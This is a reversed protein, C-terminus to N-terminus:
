VGGFLCVFGGICMETLEDYGDSCDPFGNCLDQKRLCTQGNDCRLSWRKWYQKRSCVSSSFYFIFLIKRKLCINREAVMALVKVPSSQIYSYCPRHRILFLSQKSKALRTKSPNRTTWRKLQKTNHARIKRTTNDTVIEAYFRYHVSKNLFVLDKYHSGLSYHHSHRVWLFTYLHTQKNTQHHKVGSEVIIWNYQEIPPPFRFVRLFGGVQQLDSVLKIV